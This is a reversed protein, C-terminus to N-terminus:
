AFQFEPCALTIRWRINAIGEDGFDGDLQPNEIAALTTEDAVYIGCRDMIESPSAQLAGEIKGFDISGLINLRRLMSDPSLWLDDPWGAVNPPEYLAQGMQRPRWTTEPVRNTASSFAAFAEFGSRPRAYQLDPMSPDRLVRELLPVIELDQEIWWRGLESRQEDTRETGIFHDWIKSSIRTATTPDSTLRDVVQAMDWVRTEGLYTVTGNHAREKVFEVAWDNDRNVTWGTMALAGARVDTETYNGVGLTFLEMIERSLNENPTEATSTDANLYILLNADTVFALLLDRFNGLANNRLTQLQRAVLQQYGTAYRHSTLINHWFFTMREHIGSGPRVMKQAWWILADEATDTEPVAEPDVTPVLVRDLMEDRSRGALETVASHDVRLSTRRLLQAAEILEPSRVKM